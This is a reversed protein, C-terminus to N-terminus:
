LFRKKSIPLAAVFTTEFYDIGNIVTLQEGQRVTVGGSFGTKLLRRLYYLGLGSGARGSQVAFQGRFRRDFISAKEDELIRPGPATVHASIFRENETIEVVLRSHPPAYKIANEIMLYGIIELYNKPGYTTSFSNGRIQIDVGDNTAKAKFCRCMKDFKRFVPIEDFGTSSAGEENLYTIFDLRASLIESLAVVNGSLDMAHKSAYAQELLSQLEYAANYLTTNIGRVEHVNQRTLEDFSQRLRRDSQLALKVHREVQHPELSIALYDAKGQATSVSRVKLGPIVLYGEVDTLADAENLEHCFVAYGAPSKSWGGRRLQSYYSMEASTKVVGPLGFLTGGGETVLAGSASFVMWPFALADINM